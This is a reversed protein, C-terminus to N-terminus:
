KTDCSKFKGVWTTYIQRALAHSQDLHMRNAAAMETLTQVSHPYQDVLQPFQDGPREMWLEIQKADIEIHFQMGLHPGIAFAQNKCTTSSAILEAGPPLTVFSDYHWQYVVHENGAGFWESATTEIRVWGIEPIEAREVQGGFTRALLQGGLCHGIIPIGLADAERMLREVSRLSSRDDNASWAGGLVAMGRYASVSDPYADADFLHWSIGQADLWQALYAPGDDPLHQLVLVDASHNHPVLM